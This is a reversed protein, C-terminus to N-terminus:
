MSGFAGGGYTKKKRTSKELKAILKPRGNPLKMPPDKSIDLWVGLVFVFVAADCVLLRSIQKLM